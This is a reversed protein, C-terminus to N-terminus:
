EGLVTTLRGLLRDGLHGARQVIREEDIARLAAIAAAAAIPSGGFTSSHLYPDRNFPAFAAPTCVAAAAPVVGGSLGKGVLMIDPVIGDRDVGWWTGLRGLGTQIEDVVLMADHRRCAAAVEALYGAPPIVVGGEAQVPEIVVAAAGPHRAVAEELAAVDGFPVHACDPLLPRFVDQYRASATV